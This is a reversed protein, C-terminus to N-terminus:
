PHKGPHDQRHRAERRGGQLALRLAPEAIVRHTCHAGDPGPQLPTPPSSTGGSKSRDAFRNTPSWRASVIRVCGLVVIQSPLVMPSEAGSGITCKGGSTRKAMMMANNNSIGGSQRRTRIGDTTPNNSAPNARSEVLSDAPRGRRQGSPAEGHRIEDLFENVRANASYPRGRPHARFGSIM